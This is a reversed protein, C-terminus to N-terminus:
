STSCVAEDSIPSISRSSIIEEKTAFKQTWSVAKKQFLRKDEWFLFAAEHCLPYMPDPDRLISVIDSLVSRISISPAYRVVRDLIGLSVCGDVDINPHFIRTDFRFEPPDVPFTKTFTVSVQFTANEYPTGSPGDLYLRWRQLYNPYYPEVSWGPVPQDELAKWERLILGPQIRSCFSM